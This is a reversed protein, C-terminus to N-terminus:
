IGQMFGLSFNVCFDVVILGILLLGILFLIRAYVPMRAFWNQRTPQYPMPPYYPQQHYYFPQPPPVPETPAQSPHLSFYTLDYPPQEQM